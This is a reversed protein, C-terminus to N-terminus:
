WLAQQKHFNCTVFQYKRKIQIHTYRTEGGERETQRDREGAHTDNKYKILLEIEQNHTKFDGKVM